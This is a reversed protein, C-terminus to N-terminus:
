RRAARTGRRRRAGQLGIGSGSTLSATVTVESAPMVPDAEPPMLMASAAMASVNMASRALRGANRQLHQVADGRHGAAAHVRQRVVARDDRQQGHGPQRM